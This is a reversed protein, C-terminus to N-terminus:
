LLRKNDKSSSNNEEKKNEEKNEEKKIKKLRLDNWSWCKLIEFNWIKFKSIKFFKRLM